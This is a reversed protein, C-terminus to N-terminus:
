AAIEAFQKALALTIWDRLEAMDDPTMYLSAEFGDGILALNFEGKHWDHRIPAIDLSAGMRASGEIKFNAIRNTM